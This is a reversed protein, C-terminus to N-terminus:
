IWSLEEAILGGATLAAHVAIMLAHDRPIDIPQTQDEGTHTALWDVITNGGHCCIERMTHMDPYIHLSHLDPNNAGPWRLLVMGDGFECGHAIIGTGSIGSVDVKRNLRFFNM